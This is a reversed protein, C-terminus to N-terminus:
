TNLLYMLEKKFVNVSVKDVQHPPLLQAKCKLTSFKWQVEFNVAANSFNFHNINQWHDLEQGILNLGGKLTHHVFMCLWAGPHSLCWITNATTNNPGFEHLALPAPLSLSNVTLSLSVVDNIVNFLFFFLTSLSAVDNIVDFLFFFLTNIPRMESMTLIIICITLKWTNSSFLM